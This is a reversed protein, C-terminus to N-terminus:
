KMFLKLYNLVLFPNVYSEVICGIIVVGFVPLAKSLHHRGRRNQIRTGAYLLGYGMWYFLFQPMLSVILLLLGSGGYWLYFPKMLIGMTFGIVSTMLGFCLKRFTTNSFLFLAGFVTMRNILCHILLEKRNWGNTLIDTVILRNLMTNEPFKNKCLLTVLLIGLMMFLLFLLGHSQSEDYRKRNM